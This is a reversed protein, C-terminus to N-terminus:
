LKRLWEAAAEMQESPTSAGATIAVTGAGEFWAPQLEAIDEIHHTRPQVKRCLQALRATNASNRGGIVIIVDAEEALDLAEEQSKRTSNCMTNHILLERCRPALLAVLAALNEASQTTQVVVGVKGRILDPDLEEVSEVSIAKEGAYARIAVVEPHDHEGLIIPKYGQRKLSLAKEQAVKVYPCTADVINLGMKKAQRAVEPPVGHTRFIVTGDEIESLEKAVSVGEKDLEEVVGPNHIIPGLTRIPGEASEATEHAIELAREVGYCCGGRKAILIRM